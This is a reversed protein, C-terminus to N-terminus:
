GGRERERERDRAGKGKKGEFQFITYAELYMAHSARTSSLGKKRVKATESARRQLPFITCPTSFGRRHDSSCDSRSQVTFRRSLRRTQVITTIGFFSLTTPPPPPPPPLPTLSPTLPPPPPETHCPHAGPALSPLDIRVHAPFQVPISGMVRPSLAAERM